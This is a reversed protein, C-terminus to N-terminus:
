LDEYISTQGEPPRRFRKYEWQYQAPDRAIWREIAANMTRTSEEPEAALQASDLVELQLNFGGPVRLASGMLVTPRTRRVLRQILTMTLVPQNFFPAYVGGRRRGPLQDPLVAVFGGRELERYIERVGRGDAPLMRIGARERALRIPEDLAAINPPDYLALLGLGSMWPSFFEWNGLHPLLLLTGAPQALSDKLLAMADTGGPGPPQVLARCDQASWRWVIGAELLLSATHGLSRRTRRTLEAQSLNPYCVQLNRRTVRAAQTNCLAVLAGIGRGLGRLLGLPLVSLLWLLPRVVWQTKM